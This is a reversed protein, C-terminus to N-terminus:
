GSIFEGNLIGKFPCFFYIKNWLLMCCICYLKQFFYELKEKCKNRQDIIKRIGDTFSATLQVCGRTYQM